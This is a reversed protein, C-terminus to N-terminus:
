FRNYIFQSADYGIGYAGFVLIVVFLGGFVVAKVPYARLYLLDRIDQPMQETAEGAEEAKEIRNQMTKKVVSVVLMVVVGGLVASYDALSLGLDLLGGSTVNEWNKGSFMSFIAHFTEGVTAYCDFMNLIAILLFTRLIRFGQYPKTRDLHFKAHFKNYLPEFEESLMLVLFNLIGWMVFNWSAGHWIGTTFWVIFSAVYVPVRRGVKEGFTKRTWKSFNQMWKASSVPYFIYDRFWSCMTIHWRRWYEKLSQSFYPLNFNETVRIGLMEAVGITVDIGGTFDAYLEITYFLMGFLAFAGDYTNVDGTILTVAPLLRDAVVLKKFFGWLVRWFGYTLNKGDFPQGRFLTKSLDSFRSIPGQVLQPFFAVFLAFKGINKEPPITGRGVDFLYSLAQFTYFSIGMPLAIDLFGIPERNGISNIIGNINAIFFNTYKVVALIGVNLLVAALQWYFRRSKQKAKYAKKEDRSLKEKYKALYVKQVEYNNGIQLAAFWITVTTILIYILYKPSQIAYFAYSFLLLLVWRYKQPTLYYCVLLIALFAIFGYSTFLM